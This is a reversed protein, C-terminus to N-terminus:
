LYDLHPQTKTHVKMDPGVREHRFFPQNNLPERGTSGLNVNARVSLPVLVDKCLSRASYANPIDRAKLAFPDVAPDTAKALLATGLMATFTKSPAIGVKRTRTIWEAPLDSTSRALAHAARFRDSALRYDLRIPM